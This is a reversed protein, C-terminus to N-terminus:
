SQNASLKEFDGKIVTIGNSGGDTFMIIKHVIKSDEGIAEAVEFSMYAHAKNDARRALDNNIYAEVKAAIRNYNSDQERKKANAGRYHSRHMTVPYSKM